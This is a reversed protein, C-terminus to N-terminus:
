IKHVAFDSVHVDLNHNVRLGVIGDLDVGAAPMEHVVKGNVKFSIKAPDVKGDIELKNSATGKAPDQKVLAESDTWPVLTTRVTGKMSNIMFKGDGRIIFYLYSRDAGKLDKGAVILGYAEPHTPAKTQHFTALTHFSGKVADAERYLIVAPGTTVHWGPPMDVMKVDALSANDRDLTASWGAPFSGGGAVKRDPDAPNGQALLTGASLSALTLSALFRM